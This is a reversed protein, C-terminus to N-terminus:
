EGLQAALLQAIMSDVIARNTDSLKDYNPIRENETQVPAVQKSMISAAMMLKSIAAVSGVDTGSLIEEIKSVPMGMEKAIDGITMGASELEATAGDWGMLYAPDVDLARALPAIHDVPVKEIDGSEYRFMTARSVGIAAALHEAPLGLEKRRQKIRYGTVSAAM